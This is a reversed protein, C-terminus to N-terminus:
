TADTVDSLSIIRQCIRAVERYNKLDMYAQALHVYPAAKTYEIEAITSLLKRAGPRNQMNAMSRAALCAAEIRANRPIKPFNSLEEFLQTTEGWRREEFATRMQKLLADVRDSESIM